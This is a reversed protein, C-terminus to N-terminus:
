RSVPRSYPTLQIQHTWCSRHQLSLHWYTEAIHVPDIMSDAAGPRKSEDLARTGPSDIMGDIVINAVHVGYASYEETLVQALATMMVRPYYLSEGTKRMTGHLSSPNNTFFLCGSGKLRMGPLVAKAVLFPGRCAIDVATEFVEEPLNEILEMESPLERGASYGANYIVVDPEGVKNRIEAFAAAISDRDLLDLEVVLSKGGQGEIARILQAAHARKRTTLVVYYGEAAFKQALAGGIGWRIGVPVDECDLREGTLKVTQGGDSQWKSTAGVIVVVKGFHESRVPM